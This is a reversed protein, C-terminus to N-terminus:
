IVENLQSMESLEAERALEELKGTNLKFPPFNEGYCKPFSDWFEQIAAGEYSELEMVEPNKPVFAKDQLRPLPPSSVVERM